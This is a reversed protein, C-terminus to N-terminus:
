RPILFTFVRNFFWVLIIFPVKFVLLNSPELWRDVEDLRRLVTRGNEDRYTVRTLPHPFGCQLRAAGTAPDSVYCSPRHEHKQAFIFAERLKADAIDSTCATFCYDLKDIQAGSMDWLSSITHHHHQTKDKQLEQGVVDIRSEPGYVEETEVFRRYEACLRSWQRHMIVPNRVPDQGAESRGRIFDSGYDNVLCCFAAPPVSRRSYYYLADEIKGMTWSPSGETHKLPNLQPAKKARATIDQEQLQCRLITL